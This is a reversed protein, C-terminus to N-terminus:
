AAGAALSERLLEDPEPEPPWAPRAVVGPRTPEGRRAPLVALWAMTVDSALIVGGLAVGTRSQGGWADICNM